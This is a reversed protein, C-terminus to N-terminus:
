QRPRIHLVIDHTFDPVDLRDGDFPLTAAAYTGEVPSFVHAEWSGDPLACAFTGGCPEGLGTEDIERADALYVIYEEGSRGLTAAATFPPLSLCFNPEPRMHVFDVGHIFTSLHALWTRITARAAPSGQEQGGSQISFDIMNYHGGSCVTMWARKRHITWAQEDLANTASNDEDFILPKAADWCTTWLHRIRALRLDRQMFRTLPPLPIDRFTIQQYDHINIADVTPEEVLVDLANDGRVREVSVQFVLHRRSLQDEVEHITARIADECAEVDAVSAHGPFDGFPENCVEFYINDYGNVEEVIKRVYALQREFLGRDRMSTYDQWDIDGVGNVNNHMNFPNLKWVEPAYTNSFLTLEVIIDRQRAEDLFRHLRTFFEPEWRDLDFRPFGDPAYVPGTRAFPAVYEVPAPKCPSHPNLGYHELERFLLFCRSLTAGRAAAEDLYAVQDFNRNIVAGYHETATILVLPRDHYLFYRPNEPHRRIPGSASSM